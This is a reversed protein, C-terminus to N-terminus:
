ERLQKLFKSIEGENEAEVRIEVEGGGLNRVYGRVGSLKAARRVFPRFGVGQVMGVVYVRVAKM